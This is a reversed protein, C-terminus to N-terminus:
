RYTTIQVNPITVAYDGGQHCGGTSRKITIIQVIDSQRNALRIFVGSLPKTSADLPPGQDGLAATV